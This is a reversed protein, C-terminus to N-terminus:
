NGDIGKKGWGGWWVLAIGVLVLISGVHNKYEGFSFSSRFIVGDDGSFLLWGSIIMWLGVGIYYVIGGANSNILSKM